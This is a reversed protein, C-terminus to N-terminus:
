GSGPYCRGGDTCASWCESFSVRSRESTCSCPAIGVDSSARWDKLVLRVEQIRFYSGMPEPVSTLRIIQALSFGHQMTVERV